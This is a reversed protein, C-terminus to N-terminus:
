ELLVLKKTVIRERVRLRVFYIGSKVRRGGDDEARWLLAGSCLDGTVLSCIRRGSVDYISLSVDNMKCGVDEMWLRIEVKNTFPNPSILLKLNGIELKTKKTREIGALPHVRKYYVDTPPVWGVMQCWTIGPGDSSDSPINYVIHPFISILSNGSPIESVKTRPVNFAGIEPEIKWYYVNFPLYADTDPSASEPQTCAIYIKNEQTIGVSPFGSIANTPGNEPLGIEVPLSWGGTERRTFLLIGDQWWPPHILGWKKCDLFAVSPIGSFDVCIVPFSYYRYDYYPSIAAIEKTWYAGVADYHLVIIDSSYNGTDEFSLVIWMDGTNPDSAISPYIYGPMVEGHEYATDVGHWTEGGDTSYNYGIAHVDSGMRWVVMVVSDEYITMAPYTEEEGNTASLMIAPSEVDYMVVGASTDLVARTYYIEYGDPNGAQHWAFHLNGKSDSWVNGRGTDLGGASTFSDPYSWFNFMDDWYSFLSQNGWAVGTEWTVVPFYYSGVMVNTIHKANPYNQPSSFEGGYGIGSFVVFLSDIPPPNDMEQSMIKVETFFILFLAIVLVLFIKKM